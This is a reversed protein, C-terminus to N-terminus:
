VHARGIERAVGYVESSSRITPLITAPVGISSLLVPDWELTHLNMLMTRGANTVDTVHVGGSPGGTLNWILWADITGALLDGQAARACAGPVHDLLWRLKPGSFYTALPLGTRDRFRDQGGERALEDCIEATRLDQWVIAPAVPQGTQRDWLVATERQNTVGIAALDDPVLGGRDLAQAVVQQTRMWIEAADHEVWGPQPFHQSRFLM